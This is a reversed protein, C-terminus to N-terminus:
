RADPERLDQRVNVNCKIELRPASEQIPVLILDAITLKFNVTSEVLDLLVSASSDKLQIEASVMCVLSQPALSLKRRVTDELGVQIAHANTPNHKYTM